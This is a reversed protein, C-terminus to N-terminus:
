MRHSCWNTLRTLLDEYAARNESLYSGRDPEVMARTAEDSTVLRYLGARALMSLPHDTGTVLDFLSTEGGYWCVADVAVVALGFSPPRWYPTFDIVAPDSGNSFLVNASLDGHILQSPESCPMLFHSLDRAIRRFVPDVVQMPREQWAVRDGISWVGQRADLFDPRKVGVLAAHLARGKAMVEPWRGETDHNGAVARWATWGEAVYSGDLARVPRGVRFGVPIVTALLEACWTAEVPSEVPKLIVDGVRWASGQGGDLHRLGEEM